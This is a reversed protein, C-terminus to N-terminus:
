KRNSNQELKVSQCGCPRAILISRHRQPGTKPGSFACLKALQGVLVQSVERQDTRKLSRRPFLSLDLSLSLRTLMADTTTTTASGGCGGGGGCFPVKYATMLEM